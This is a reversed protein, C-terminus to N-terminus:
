FHLTIALEARNIAFPMRQFEEIDEKKHREVNSQVAKRDWYAAISNTKFRRKLKRLNRQAYRTPFERMFKLAPDKMKKDESTALFVENESIRVIKLKHV